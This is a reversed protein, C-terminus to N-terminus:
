TMSVLSVAIAEQQGGAAMGAAIAEGLAETVAEDRGNGGEKGEGDAVGLEGLEGTDANGVDLNGEGVMFEFLLSGQQNGVPSEATGGDEFEGGPSGSEEVVAVILGWEMEVPQGLVVAFGEFLDILLLFGVM